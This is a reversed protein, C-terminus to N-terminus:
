CRPDNRRRRTSQDQRFAKLEALLQESLVIGRESVEAQDRWGAVAESRQAEVDHDHRKHEGWLEAIVKGAIGLLTVSLLLAGFPGTVDPV